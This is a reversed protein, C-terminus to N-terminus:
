RDHKDRIEALIREAVNRIITMRAIFDESSLEGQGLIVTEKTLRNLGELEARYEESRNMDSAEQGAAERKTDDCLGGFLRNHEKRHTSKHEKRRKKGERIMAGAYNFALAAM